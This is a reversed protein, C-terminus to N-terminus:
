AAYFIPERLHMQEKIKQEDEATINLFKVGIGCPLHEGVVNPDRTWDIVGRMMKPTEGKGWIVSMEVLIGVELIQETAVFLGVEEPSDSVGSYFGSDPCCALNVALPTSQLGLLDIQGSSAATQKDEDLPQSLPWNMMSQKPRHRREQWSAQDRLADRDQPPQASLSTSSTTPKHNHYICEVAKRVASIKHWSRWSNWGSRWLLHVGRPDLCIERAIEILTLRQGGRRNHYHFRPLSATESAEIPISPSGKPETQTSLPSSVELPLTSISSRIHSSDGEHLTTMQVLIDYVSTTSNM